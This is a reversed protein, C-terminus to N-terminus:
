KISGEQKWKYYRMISYNIIDLLEQDIGEHVKPTEGRALLNEINRIRDVKHAITDTLTTARDREWSSGYDHNKEVMLNLATQCVENHFAILEEITM